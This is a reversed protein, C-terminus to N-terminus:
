KLKRYCWIADEYNGMLEYCNGKKFHLLPIHNNLYDSNRLSELTDLAKKFSKKQLYADTIIFYSVEINEPHESSAIYIQASVIADRLKGAKLYSKALWYQKDEIEKLHVKKLYSIAKDYDRDLFHIKALELLSNQGWETDKNNDALQKFIPLYEKKNSSQKAQLFQKELEIDCFLNFTIIFLAIVIFINKM